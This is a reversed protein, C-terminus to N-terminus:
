NSTVTNIEYGYTVMRIARLLSEQSGILAILFHHQIPEKHRRSKLSRILLTVILIVNWQATLPLSRQHFIRSEQIHMQQWQIRWAM